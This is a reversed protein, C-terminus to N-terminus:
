YLQKTVTNEPVLLHHDDILFHNLVELGMFIHKRLIVSTILMFSSHSFPLLFFIVTLEFVQVLMMKAITHKDSLIFLYFLRWFTPDLNHERESPQVEKSFSENSAEKRVDERPIM